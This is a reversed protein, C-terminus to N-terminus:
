YDRYIRLKGFSRWRERDIFEDGVEKSVHLSVIDSQALLTELDVYQLGLESELNEKRNRSYYILNVNFPQLLRALQEGINGLGVIGVTQSYLSGTTEFSKDGMRTLDQLNRTMALIATLTYEAVARANAGPANTIAIGKKTALEHGPIFQRWDTGTFAIMKLTDTSNIIKETVKEIGGLIYADKGQLAEILENETAQPTDLREIEFGMEKLKEEHEQFIFLNDTILLKM